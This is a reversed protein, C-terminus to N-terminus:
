TQFLVSTIIHSNNSNLMIQERRREICLSPLHKQSIAGCGVFALSSKSLRFPCHFTQASAPLRLTKSGSWAPPNVTTTPPSLCSCGEGGWGGWVEWESMAEGTSRPGHHGEWEAGAVSHQAPQSHLAATAYLPLEILPRELVHGTDTKWWIAASWRAELTIIPAAPARSSNPSKTKLSSEIFSRCFRSTSSSLPLSCKLTKRGRNDLAYIILFSERFRHSHAVEPPSGTSRQRIEETAASRNLIDFASDVKLLFSSFIIISLEWQSTLEAM